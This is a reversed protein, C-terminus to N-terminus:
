IPPLMGESGETRPGPITPFRFQLPERGPQIAWAQGTEDSHAALLVAAAVEEPQLLPFGAQEFLGRQGTRDLMPTDVFGPCVANIRIGRESLQPAASRVFGIVAHKTLAYIPDSPVATLGALSATAVFASGRRMLPALQRVGFVVGDVNVGLARRYEEDGLLRLDAEGTLVGANLCVLDAPLVGEWDRPSSVDFGDALDLVEVDTGDAELAAVIAAGIGSRGGTVIATEPFSSM